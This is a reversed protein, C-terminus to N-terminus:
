PTTGGPADVGADVPIPIPNEPRTSKCTGFNCFPCPKLIGSSCEISSSCVAGCTSQPKPKPKSVITALTDKWTWLDSLKDPDPNYDLDSNPRSDAGSLRRLDARLESIQRRLEDSERRWVERDELRRREQQEAREESRGEEVLRHAVGGIVTLISTALLGLAANARRKIKKELDDREGIWLGHQHAWNAVRAFMRFPISAGQHLGLGEALIIEDTTVEKRLSVILDESM